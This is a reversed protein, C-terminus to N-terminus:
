QVIESLGKALSSLGSSRMIIFPKQYRKCIQKVCNCAYHSVCDVPCLVADANNLMKPLIARSVEKGGDHHAFRGNYKEVMQRYHPVMKHQGGVYLVTKGCLDPGPCRDTNCDECAPCCCSSATQTLLATELSLIEQHMEQKERELRAQKEELVTITSEALFCLEQSDELEVRLRHLQDCLQNNQHRLGNAEKEKEGLNTSEFEGEYRKQRDKLKGNEEALRRSDKEAVRLKALENKLKSKENFNRQREAGLVERYAIVSSQLNELLRCDRQYEGFFDHGMMHVEGYVATALDSGITPHTVLAWYAGAINGKEVSQKWLEQLEDETSLKSFKLVTSRFKKELIRHLNRSKDSRITAANVLASHMKFDGDAMDLDFVKKRALKHLEVRRFCTGIVSCHFGSPIEWLKKRRLTPSKKVSEKKLTDMIDM